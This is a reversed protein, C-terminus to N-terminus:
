PAWVVREDRRVVDTLRNIVLTHQQVRDELVASMSAKVTAPLNMAYIAQIELALEGVIESHWYIADTLTCADVANDYCQALYKDSHMSGDGASGRRQEMLRRRAYIAHLFTRFNESDSLWDLLNRGPDPGRNHGADQAM